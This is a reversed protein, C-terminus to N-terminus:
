ALCGWHRCLTTELGAAPVLLSQQPLCCQLTSLCVYSYPSTLQVCSWLRSTDAITHMGASLKRLKHITPESARTTARDTPTDTQIPLTGLWLSSSTSSSGSRNTRAPSATMDCKADTSTIALLAELESAEAALVHSHHQWEKQQLATLRKPTSWYTYYLNQFNLISDCTCFLIAM